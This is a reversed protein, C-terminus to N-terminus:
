LRFIREAVDVRATVGNREAWRLAFREAVVKPGLVGPLQEGALADALLDVADLNDVESLVQNNPPTRLTAAVVDGGDTVVAYTPPDTAFLEPVSRIQSAIGFFLNHEAERAALYEGAQALFADVDTPRHLVLAMRRM